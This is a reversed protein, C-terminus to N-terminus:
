FVEFYGMKAQFCGMKRDFFVMEMDFVGLFCSNGMLFPGLRVQCGSGREGSGNRRVQAGAPAM